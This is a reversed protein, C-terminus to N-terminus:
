GSCGISFPINWGEEEANGQSDCDSDPITRIGSSSVEDPTEAAKACHMGTHSHWCGLFAVKLAM